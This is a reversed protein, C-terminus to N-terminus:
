EQVAQRDTSLGDGEAGIGLASQLSEALAELVVADEHAQRHRAAREKEPLKLGAQYSLAYHAARLLLAELGGRALTLTPEM